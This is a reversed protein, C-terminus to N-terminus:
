RQGRHAIGSFSEHGSASEAGARPSIREILGALQRTREFPARSGTMCLRGRWAAHIGKAATNGFFGRWNRQAGVPQGLGGGNCGPEPGDAHGAPRGASLQVGTGAEDLQPSSVGLDLLVGDCSEPKLGSAWTRTIARDFKLVGPSIRIITGQSGRSRQWGPRLWVATWETRQGEFDGRRAWRWRRNRRPVPQGAQNPPKGAGGGDAGTQSHLGGGTM